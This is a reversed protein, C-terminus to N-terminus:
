CSESYILGFCPSIVKVLVLVGWRRSVVFSAGVGRLRDCFSFIFSFLSGIRQKHLSKKGSVIFLAANLELFITELATLVCLKEDCTCVNECASWLSM